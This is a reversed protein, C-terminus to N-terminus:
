RTAKPAKGTWRKYARSFASPESFGLAFAVEKVPTGAALLADARERRVDEIVGRLSQGEEELRRRLTRASVGVSRGVCTLTPTGGQDAVARRVRDLFPTKGAAEATRAISSL